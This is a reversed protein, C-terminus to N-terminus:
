KYCMDLYFLWNNDCIKSFRRKNHMCTRKATLVLIDLFLCYQYTDTNCLIDWQIIDTKNFCYRESLRFVVTYLWTVLLWLNLQYWSMVGDINSMHICVENEEGMTWISTITGFRKLWAEARFRIWWQGFCLGSAEIERHKQVAIMTSHALRLTM